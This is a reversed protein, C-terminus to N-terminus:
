IGLGENASPVSWHDNICIEGFSACKSSFIGFFYRYCSNYGVSVFIDRNRSMEEDLLKEDSIKEDSMKEDASKRVFLNEYLMKEDTKKRGALNEDVCIEDLM